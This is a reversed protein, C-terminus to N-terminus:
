GDMTRGSAGRFVTSGLHHFAHFHHQTPMDIGEANGWRRLMKLNRGTGCGADLIKLRKKKGLIERAIMIMGKYWWLEDEVLYMKEYEDKNM